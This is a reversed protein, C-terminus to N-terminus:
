KVSWRNRQVRLVHFARAGKLFGNDVECIGSFQLLKDDVEAPGIAFRM